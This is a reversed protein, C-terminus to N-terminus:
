TVKVLEEATSGTAAVWVFTAIFVGLSWSRM